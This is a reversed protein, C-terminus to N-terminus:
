PLLGRQLLERETLVKGTVFNVMWVAHRDALAALVVAGAAANAHDDHDESAHDIKEGKRVLGIFQQVLKLHDLLEVKGSNLLPEFAAYLQSRNLEAPKYTIGYKQFAQIPWQAAYRDGVVSSCGYVKLTESFKKVTEEPSFTGNTRPGQDILCALIYRGNIVYVIVLVSDDGGGGSLECFAFATLGPEPPLVRRNAVVANEVSEADFAADDPQGPLNLYLRRFIWSPLSRQADLISEMTPGLPTDLAPTADEITGSYWAVFLRPDSKAEHQKLM